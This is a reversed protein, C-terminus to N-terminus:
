MALRGVMSQYQLFNVFAFNCLSKIKIIEAAVIEQEPAPCPVFVSNDNLTLM